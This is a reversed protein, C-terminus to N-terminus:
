QGNNIQKQEHFINLEKKMQTKDKKSLKSYFKKLKRYKQKFTEEENYSKVFSKLIKVSKKNM